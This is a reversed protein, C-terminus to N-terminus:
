AMTAEQVLLPLAAPENAASQSSQHAPISTIPEDLGHQVIIGTLSRLFWSKKINSEKSQACILLNRPFLLEEIANNTTRIAVRAFEQKPYRVSQHMPDIVHLSTIDALSIRNSSSDHEKKIGDITTEGAFSIKTVATHQTGDTVVGHYIGLDPGLEIYHPSANDGDKKEKGGTHATTTLLTAIAITAIIKKM